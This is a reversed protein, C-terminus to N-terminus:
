VFCDNHAGKFIGVYFSQFVVIEQQQPLNVWYVRNLLDKHKEEDVWNIFSSFVQTERLDSLVTNGLAIYQRTPWKYSTLWTSCFRWALSCPVRQFKVFLSIIDNLITIEKTQRRGTCGKSELYFPSWPWTVRSSECRRNKACCLTAINSCITAM